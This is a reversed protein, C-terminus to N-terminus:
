RAASLVTILSLTVRRILFPRSGNWTSSPGPSSFPGSAKDPLHSPCGVPLLMGRTPSTTLPPPDPLRSPSVCTHRPQQWFCRWSCGCQLSFLSLSLLPSFLLHDGPFHPYKSLFVVPKSTLHLPFPFHQLFHPVDEPSLPVPVNLALQAFFSFPALSVCIASPHSPPLPNSPPQRHCPTACSPRRDSLVSIFAQGPPRSRPPLRSRALSVLVLAM